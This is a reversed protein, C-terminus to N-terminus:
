KKAIEEAKKLIELIEPDPKIGREVMRQGVKEGLPIKLYNFREGPYKEHVLKSLQNEIPKETDIDYISIKEGGCLENITEVMLEIPLYEEFNGKKLVHVLEVNPIRKSEIKEVEKAMNKDVVFICPLKYAELVRAYMKMKKLNAGNTPIISIGLSRANIGACTFLHPYAHLETDGEVILSCNGGGGLLADSVKIGILEQLDSPNEILFKSAYTAGDYRRRLVINDELRGLDIFVPSHTTCIVQSNISVQQMAWLMERQARPHLSNEPEEIALIFDPTEYKAYVRFLALIFNNQIGAGRNELPIERVREDSIEIPIDIGKVPDINVEHTLDISNNNLQEKLADNIDTVRRAVGVRIETKLNEITNNAEEKIIQKVLPQFLRGFLSTATMKGQIELNRGAPVLVFEPINGSLCKFIFFKLANLSND